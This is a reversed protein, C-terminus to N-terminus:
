NAKQGLLEIDKIIKQIKEPSLNKIGGFKSVKVKFGCFELVSKKLMNVFPDNMMFRNWWTPGDSLVIIRASRGVLLKDWMPSNQRYKFAFGPILTRDLFGKLLAPVAGWWVPSVFVVHNADLINQQMMILDPELTQIVKYGERLIPDFKLDALHILQSQFGKDKAAKFYTEALKGSLSNKSSHGNIVLINM